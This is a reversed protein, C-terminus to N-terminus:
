TGSYDLSIFKFRQTNNNNIGIVLQNPKMGDTDYQPFLNGTNKGERARTVVTTIVYTGNKLPVIKWHEVDNRSVSNFGNAAVVSSFENNEDNQISLATYRALEVIKYEYTTPSSANYPASNLYLDSKTIVEISWKQRKNGNIYEMELPKQKEDGKKQASVVKNESLVPLIYYNGTLPLEKTYDPQYASIRYGTATETESLKVTTDSSTGKVVSTSGNGHTITITHNTYDKGAGHWTALEDINPYSGNVTKLTAKMCKTGDPTLGTVMERGEYIASIKTAPTDSTGGVCDVIEKVNDLNTNLRKLKQTNTEKKVVREIRAKGDGDNVGAFMIGDVFYFMKDQTSPEGTELDYVKTTKEFGPNNTWNGNKDLGQCGAYGAIYSKGGVSSITSSYYGSGGGNEATPGYTFIADSSDAYSEYGVLTKTKLSYDSSTNLIGGDAIMTNSYGMLTGGHSYSEKGGGAAVMIRSNISATDGDSKKVIRVDTSGGTTSSHKGVHFYLTDEEQLEILGATYAGLGGGGSAGWLEVRYWGSEDIPVHYAQESNGASFSTYTRNFRNLDEEIENSLNRNNARNVAMVSMLLAMLMMGMISLGYILTTIAFGKNNLKM